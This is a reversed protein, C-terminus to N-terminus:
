PQWHLVAFKDSRGEPYGYKGTAMFASSHLCDKIAFSHHPAHWRAIPWFGLLRNATSDAMSAKELDDHARVLVSAM